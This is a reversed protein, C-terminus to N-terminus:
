GRCGVVIRLAGAVGDQRLDNSALFEPTPPDNDDADRHLRLTTAWGTARGTEPRLGTLAAM